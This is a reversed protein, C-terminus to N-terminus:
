QAQFKRWDVPIVVVEPRQWGLVKGFVEMGQRPPIVQVGRLSLRAAVQRKVASGIESWAGWNISLAPLDTVRRQRALADLFANAAAHNAQAPSGFVSAVSSFLVFFDLPSDKTLLHLNWAGEVKPA